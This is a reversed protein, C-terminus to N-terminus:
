LVKNNTKCTLMPPITMIVSEFDSSGSSKISGRGPLVTEKLSKLTKLYVHISRNIFVWFTFLAPM